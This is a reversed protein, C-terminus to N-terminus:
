EMHMSDTSELKGMSGRRSMMVSETGQMLRSKAYLGPKAAEEITDKIEDDDDPENTYYATVGKLIKIVQDENFKKNFFFVSM